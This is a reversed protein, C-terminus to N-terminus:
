EHHLYEYGTWRSDEAAEEHKNARGGAPLASIWGTAALRFYLLVLLEGDTRYLDNTELAIVAAHIRSFCLDRTDRAIASGMLVMRQENEGCFPRLREISDALELLYKKTAKHPIGAEWELQHLLRKEM